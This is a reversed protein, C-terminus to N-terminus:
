RTVEMRTQSKLADLRTSAGDPWTIILTQLQATAPFGFHIRVPDGSLYGGSARVDRHYAGQSTQLELQAGIAWPNQGQQWHLGVELAAGGCLQNEFLQASQRLNNVVIDLKGDNNLDAMVMGRGSATSGLQWEPAKAFTGDGLNRFAQNAEVLEDNPLYGFLNAAIMGNVVYLDLYGDNNLDGFRSAWSWGTADIGSPAAENQWRGPRQQVQLVNAMLQPDGAVRPHTKELASMMPLWDALNRPSIDYPNMDTTFLALAGQNTLDGWDISMTSSSIQAFPQAPLWEPQRKQQWDEQNHLWIGDELAFDNAVWIDRQGDGNLDVLGISLAEAKGSLRHADFHDGAREYCMVGALENQEPNAIDHGKLDTNYSGTIVDLTGDGNIDGWAMSYAYSTVGNLPTRVFRPTIAAGQNRWYSLSELGRHTFVIDLWGDGDVDVINVARTFRDALSESTFHLDGQNWLIESEGDVSAFVLDLKGDKDLDNVAVGAGNSEYTNIQRLRTGTAFDLRHIVFQDTCAVAAQLPFNELTVPVAAPATRAPRDQPGRQSCAALLCTIGLILCLWYSSHFQRQMTGSKVM